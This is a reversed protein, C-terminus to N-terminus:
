HVFLFQKSNLLAWLLDQYCEEANPIETLFREAEALEAQTPRRCLTSLYLESVIEDHPKKAALLQSVRGKADAVKTAVIDGNLTHLAQGLNEDPSRECECVSARKPKGFTVLFPNQTVADPLEVSRTGLPLNPHKTQSQTSQDIADLLPEAALRKVRYHSYFRRDAANQPTPQSDLQYLRSTMIRRMLRKLDFHQDRFDRALAEMLGVNSPPNTSRMDDIPEVLGRGLLYAMYRNVANRAFAENQPATLWGALPTRRDLPDDMEPGDLAKPKLIQGTKPHAIEGNIRAVVVIEGGFNGFEASGKTSIRSFFAAFSYYEHQGYKEYPHHHCKACALRTGLFLQATTEALDPPNNAIRFYNAPGNSFISGRATILERVFEDFPKNTRFSERLWNHMAWMGSEGVVTSNNRILDAWKLSWVAAYQDSYRADVAPDGTLGLLRDVLKSRKEPDTSDLFAVTEEITPMTGLADLYARRLFTADDCLPSPMLGLERFKEAAFDDIFNQSQWATLDVTDAYPVVITSIAAEGGFRAMVQAQGRGVATLQGFPTVNLLADDMSDFRAWATVDRASGQDYHAVVRLQQTMGVTGVRRAPHVELRSVKRSTPQPGPFGGAIWASLLQYDPSGPELRKGGGHPSQMTPKRLLLSRTPSMASVRRGRNEHAIADYDAQPDYGLVSLTFGGKGYQSAHCAGANCGARYFVPEVQEEFLISPEAVVGTVVVPITKAVGDVTVTLMTEGNSLGRVRGEPSVEAIDPHQIEFQARGTFDNARPDRETTAAADGTTRETVLVQTQEFNRSLSITVPTVDYEGRVDAVVLFVPLALLSAALRQRRTKNIHIGIM